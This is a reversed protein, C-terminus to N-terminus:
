FIISKFIKHLKRQNFIIYSFSILSILFCLFRNVNSLIVDLLMIFSFEFRAILGIGFLDTVVYGNFM